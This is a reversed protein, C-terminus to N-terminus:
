YQLVGLLSAIDELELTELENAIVFREFRPFHFHLRFNAPALLYIRQGAVWM